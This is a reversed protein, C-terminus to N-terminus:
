HGFADHDHTATDDSHRGGPVTLLLTLLDRQDIATRRM